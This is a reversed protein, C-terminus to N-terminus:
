MELFVIEEVFEWVNSRKLECNCRVVEDLKTLNDILMPTCTSDSPLTFWNM